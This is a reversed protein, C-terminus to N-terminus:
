EKEIRKNERDSTLIALDSLFVRKLNGSGNSTATTM